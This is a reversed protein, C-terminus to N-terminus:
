HEKIKRQPLGLRDKDTKFMFDPNKMLARQNRILATNPRAKNTGTVCTYDSPVQFLSDPVMTSKNSITEFVLVPKRPPDEYPDLPEDEVSSYMEYKLPAGQTTPLSGSFASILEVVTNPLPPDALTWLKCWSKKPSQRSYCAASVGSLSIPQPKSWAIDGLIPDEGVLIGPRAMEELVKAMPKTVYNRRAPNVIHVRTFPHRTLVVIGTMAHEIRVADKSVIVKQKGNGMHKQHLVLAQTDAHAASLSLLLAGTLFTAGISLRGICIFRNNKRDTIPVAPGPVVNVTGIM